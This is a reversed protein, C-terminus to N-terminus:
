GVPEGGIEIALVAERLDYGGALDVLAVFRAGERGFITARTPNAGGGASRGVVLLGRDAVTRAIAPLAAECRARGFSVPTLANMIRVVEFQGPEPAFMDDRGLTIRSDAAQADVVHPHFLSAVEVRPHGPRDIAAAARRRLLGALVAVPLRHQRRGPTFGAGGIAYQFTFKQGNLYVFAPGWRVRYLSDFRDSAKLTARPFREAVREFLELSTLATSAALDHVRVPDDPAFREELLDVLIPDLDSFRGRRTSLLCRNDARVM